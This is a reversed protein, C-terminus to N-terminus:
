SVKLDRMSADSHSGRQARNVRRIRFVASHVFHVIQVYKNWAPSAKLKDGASVPATLETRRPASM